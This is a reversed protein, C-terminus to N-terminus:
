KRGLKEVVRLKASRANSNEYIENEQPVVPKKTMIKVLAKHQCICQPISKDCLCDLSERQFLQKVIRDELSHWSIVLLRGGPRLCYIADLLSQELIGLEDNVAIRLAQFIRAKSKISNIEVQHKRNIHNLSKDIIASLEGTRSIRRENRHYVIANAIHASFNEEGFNFFIEKLQAESYENVIQEATLPNDQNMRMDLPSDEMFMFGKEPNSIQYTSVGIDFLAGDIYNIKELALRTRMNKFNDKIISVQHHFAELRKGAYDIADQDQDFGILRIGSQRSLMEFSHGGGGLTADVYLGGEKLKMYDLVENVMVPVHYTM